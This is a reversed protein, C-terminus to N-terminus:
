ARPEYDAGAAVEGMRAFLLVWAAYGFGALVVFAFLTLAAAGATQQGTLAAWLLAPPFLTGVILFSLAITGGVRFTGLAGMARGCTYLWDITGDASRAVGSRFSEIPHRVSTLTVADYHGFSRASRYIHWSPSPAVSSAKGIAFSERM